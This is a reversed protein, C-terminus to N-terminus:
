TGSDKFGIHWHRGDCFPKNGSGGCRCLAVGTLTACPNGEADQLNPITQPTPNNLLYYPGNPLCAIRPKQNSM